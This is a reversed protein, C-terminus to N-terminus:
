AGPRLTGIQGYETGVFPPQRDKWDRPWIAQPARNYIGMDICAFLVEYATTPGTNRVIFMPSFQGDGSVPQQVEVTIEPQLSVWGTYAGFLALAAGAIEAV